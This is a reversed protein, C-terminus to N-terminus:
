RRRAAAELLSPDLPADRVDDNVRITADERLEAIWETSRRAQEHQEYLRRVPDVIADFPPPELPTATDVRVLLAGDLYPAPGVVDGAQSVIVGETASAGIYHRLTQPPMATRPVAPRMALAELEEFPTGVVLEARAGWAAGASGYRKVTVAYTGARAFADTHEDYFARLDAETPEIPGVAASREDLARQVLVAAASDDEPWVSRAHVVILTEDILEDLVQQRHADSLVPGRDAMALTALADAYRRAAIPEGDVTAVVYDPLGPPSTTCGGALWLAAVASIM